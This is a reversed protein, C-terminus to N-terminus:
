PIIEIVDDAKLPRPSRELKFKDLFRGQNEIQEDMKALIARTSELEETLVGNSIELVDLRNRLKDILRLEETQEPAHLETNYVHPVTLVALLVIAAWHLNKLVLSLVKSM